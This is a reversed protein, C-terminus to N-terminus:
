HKATRSYLSRAWLFGLLALGVCWALATWADNGIETGLLLGRLTENIPTFPQYEAFWRLVTPMSDPTVVASGLFPLFTLPMPTNSAAEVTQSGLGIAASIWTLAFSLLALLGAAALWEVLSANPRFGVALAIGIVLVLSIMAQIVSGIVHGVLVSSRAIPMTRFRNIIGETMDMCVAVSTAVACSTAAMLIIGPAVYNTYEKRAGSATDLGIGNGLADGFVYVFLLLMLIPMAVVSVTMAPYRQMRKLNRRLMTMGDRVAYTSTSM